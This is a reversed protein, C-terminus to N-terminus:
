LCVYRREEKGFVCTRITQAVRIMAECAEVPDKMGEMQLGTQPLIIGYKM